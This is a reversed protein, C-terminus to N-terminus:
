GENWDGRFRLVHDRVHQYVATTAAVDGANYAAITEIEGRAYLPAVMSGDIEGKPSRIGLAWCVVDLSSPGLGRNGQTIVQHLDLHPRLDYPRSLLDVRAAIGQVLSRAVLYPVDFGRGNYTVVQRARGALAWFARLLDPESVARVHAPFDDHERGPPPVVFVTIRQEDPRAEGEGVALSIVRGFMPSLSMVKNEDGDGREAWKAVAQAITSPARRLDTAPVTEIDFVLTECALGSVLEHGEGLVLRPDYEEDGERVPRIRHVGLQIAGHWSRVEFLIKVADGRRLGAAAELARPTDDWIKGAFAATSDSLQLDIFPRGDRTQGGRQEQLCAFASFIRGSERRVDALCSLHIPHPSSM